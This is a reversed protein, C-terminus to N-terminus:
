KRGSTVQWMDHTVYWKDYTGYVKEKGASSTMQPDPIGPTGSELKNVICLQCQKIYKM